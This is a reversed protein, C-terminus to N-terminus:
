TVLRNCFTTADAWVGGYKSLLLARVIDSNHCMM